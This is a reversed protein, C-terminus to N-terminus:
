AADGRSFGRTGSARSQRHLTSVANRLARAGIVRYFRLDEARQVRPEIRVAPGQARADYEGQLLRKEDARQLQWVGLALFAPLLAAAALTPALGPRFRRTM